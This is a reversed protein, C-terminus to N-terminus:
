LIVPLIAQQAWYKHENGVFHAIEPNNGANTPPLLRQIGARLM